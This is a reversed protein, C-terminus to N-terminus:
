SAGGGTVNINFSTELIAGDGPRPWSVSIGVDLKKGYNMYLLRYMDAIVHNPAGYPYTTPSTEAGPNTVGLRAMTVTQGDIDTEFEDMHQTRNYPDKGSWIITGSIDSVWYFGTPVTLFYGTTASVIVPPDTAKMGPYRISFTQVFNLPNMQYTDELESADYEISIDPLQEPVVAPNITIQNLPVTQMEQGTAGYAKIVAGSMDIAEGTHYETKAPPTTIRIEVPVVEEVIEGTTPDTTITKEEGSQPDKGTVRGIGHVTVQSYGYYGEDSANYTGDESISKTTLRVEDEPVWNCTGGGVKNTRLKDVTLQKGVGGEQIIINESM